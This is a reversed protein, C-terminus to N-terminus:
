NCPNGDKATVIIVTSGTKFTGADTQNTQPGLEEPVGPSSNGSPHDIAM